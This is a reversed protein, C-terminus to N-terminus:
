HLIGPPYENDVKIYFQKDKTHEYKLKLESLNPRKIVTFDRMKSGSVEIKESRQGDTSDICLNYIPMSQKKAGNVTILQHTEYRDPKLKLREIADSSIFNRGSGTDLYAM